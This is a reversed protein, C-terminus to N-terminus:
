LKTWIWVPINYRQYPSSLSKKSYGVQATNAMDLYSSFIKKMSSKQQKYVHNESKIDVNGAVM